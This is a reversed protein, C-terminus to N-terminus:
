GGVVPQTGRWFVLSGILLAAAAVLMVASGGAADWVFGAILSGLAWGPGAQAAQSMTQATARLGRPAADNAFGVTAMWMLGFSIGTLPVVLIVQWPATALALLVWVLGSGAMGIIMTRRYSVFAFWRLSLFMVPIETCASLAFALGVQEQTAGLSLMHLGLFNIYGSAGVGLLFMMLILSVFDRQALLTRLGVWLSMRESERRLPLRLSLLSCILALAVAHVVFVWELPISSALLGLGYSALVFGISGWLRQRGYSADTEAVITMVSSDVLAAIPSRFFNMALLALLIAGFSGLWIFSLSILGAGFACLALVQRHIQWRDAAAGWIPNAALAILPSISGILGIQVGTLGKHQLYINFFPVLAGLAGFFFFYYLKAILLGRRFRFRDDAAAKSGATTILQGDSTM